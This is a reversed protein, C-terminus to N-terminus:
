TEHKGKNFSVSATAKCHVIKDDEMVLVIVAQINCSHHVDLSIQYPVQLVIAHVGIWNLTTELAKRLM